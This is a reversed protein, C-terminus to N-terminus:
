KNLKYNRIIRKIGIVKLFKMLFSKIIKLILSFKFTISVRKKEINLIYKKLSDFDNNLMKEKEYDISDLKFISRLYETGSELVFGNQNFINELSSLTFHYTHANQFYIGFDSNFAKHVNKMGPVEIYVITNQHCIKKIEMIEENLDLIHEMVHSYIIVDPKKEIKLSKIGGVKLNLGYKEAGYNVYKSGLDCGYVTHGLDRFYKLIGGAGCGIEVINLKKKSILKSEYIFSHIKKARYFQSYFFDDTPTPKGVYLDRYEQDYFENYSEQNMRPSTYVLGCDKCINTSYSLGYRDKKGIIEKNESDCIQCSISEFEYTKNKIKQEIRKKASKQIRNLNIIAKSDNKLRTLIM